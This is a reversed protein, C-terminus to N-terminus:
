TNVVYISGLCLAVCITGYIVLFYGLITETRSQSQKVLFAGPAVSMTIVGFTSGGLQVLTSLNSVVMSLLMCFFVVGFTATMNEVQSCTEISKHRLGLALSKLPFCYLPTSLIATSLLLLNAINILRSEPFDTGLQVLINDKITNRYALYPFIGSATYAIWTIGAAAAAYTNFKPKLPRKTEAYLGPINFQCLFGLSVQAWAVLIGNFSPTTPVSGPVIPMFMTKGAIIIATTVYAFLCYLSAFQLREYSRLLSIGGIIATVAIKSFFKLSIFGVNIGFNLALTTLGSSGLVIYISCALILIGALSGECFFYRLPGYGFCAEGLQEFSTSKTRSSAIQLSIIGLWSFVAGLISLIIGYTTGTLKFAMPMAAIGTGIMSACLSYLVGEGSLAEVVGEGFFSGNLSLDSKKRVFASTISTRISDSPRYLGVGEDYAKSDHM